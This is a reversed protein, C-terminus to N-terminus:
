HKIVHPLIKELYRPIARIPSIVKDQAQNAAEAERLREEAPIVNKNEAQANQQRAANDGDRLKKIRSRALEAYKGDPYRDLYAQASQITYSDQAAQWLVQEENAISGSSRLKSIRAQALGVYSGQPYDTLYNQYSAEDGAREAALWVRQEQTVAEGQSQPGMEKLRDVVQFASCRECPISNSYVAKNDMVNRISLALLYGGEIKTVNATAILESQFAIAINEMCRTEDCENKATNSERKFIERAKQAVEDGAFVEYKRQLGQVLATEMAGLMNQSEEGVRLPMLVLREKASTGGQDPQSAQTSTSVGAFILLSLAVRCLQRAGVKGLSAHSKM